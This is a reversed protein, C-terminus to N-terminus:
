AHILLEGDMLSLFFVGVDDTYAAADANSVTWETPTAEIHISDPSMTAVIPLDHPVESVQLDIVVVTGIKVKYMVKLAAYLM